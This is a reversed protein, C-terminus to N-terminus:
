ALRSMHDPQALQVPQVLRALLLRILAPQAQPVLVVKFGRFVKFVRLDPQVSVVKVERQVSVVRRGQQVPSLLILVRLVLLVRRGRRVPTERLVRRARLVQRVPM